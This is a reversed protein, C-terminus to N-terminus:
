DILDIELAGATAPARAGVMAFLKGSQTAFHLEPGSFSATRMGYPGSVGATALTASRTAPTGNPLVQTRTYGSGDVAVSGWSGNTAGGRSATVPWTV